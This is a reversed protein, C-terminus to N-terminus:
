LHICQLLDRRHCPQAFAVLWVAIFFLCIRRKNPFLFCFGWYQKRELVPLAEQDGTRPRSEFTNRQQARYHQTSGSAYSRKKKNYLATDHSSLLYTGLHKTVLTLSSLSYYKYKLSIKSKLYTIRTILANTIPLYPWPHTFYLHSCFLCICDIRNEWWIFDCHETCHCLPQIETTREEWM